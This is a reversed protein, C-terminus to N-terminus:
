CYFMNNKNAKRTQKFLNRNCVQKKCEELKRTRDRVCREWNKQDTEHNNNGVQNNKTTIKLTTESLSCTNHKNRYAPINAYTCNHMSKHAHVSM